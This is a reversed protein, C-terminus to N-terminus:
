NVGRTKMAFWLKLPRCKKFMKQLECFMLNGNIFLDYIDEFRLMQGEPSVLYPDKFPLQIIAASEHM